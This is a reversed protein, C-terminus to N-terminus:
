GIRPRDERRPTLDIVQGPGYGAPLAAFLDRAQAGAAVQSHVSLKRMLNHVHTRVTNPSLGLRTAIDSRGLGQSLALLVERERETLSSLVQESQAALASLQRLDALVDHVVDPPLRLGGRAVEEVANAVDDPHDTWTCIGAAGERLLLAVSRVEVHQVLVLVRASRGLLRLVHGALQESCVVVDWGTRAVAALGVVDTLVQTQTGDARVDLVHALSTALLRREDAILV